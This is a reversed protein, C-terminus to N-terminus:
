YRRTPRPQTRVEFLRHFWPPSVDKFGGCLTVQDKWGINGKRLHTSMKAGYSSKMGVLVFSTGQM